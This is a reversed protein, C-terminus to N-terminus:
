SVIILIIIIIIIEQSLSVVHVELAPPPATTLFPPQLGACQLLFLSGAARSLRDRPPLGPMPPHCRGAGRTGARHSSGDGRCGASCRTPVPFPPSRIPPRAPPCPPHQASWTGVKDWRLWQGIATDLQPDGTHYPAHLLNSNLDGEANEAM